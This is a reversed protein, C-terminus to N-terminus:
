YTDAVPGLATTFTTTTYTATTLFTGYTESTIKTAGFNGVTHTVYRATTADYQSLIFYKAPGTATYTATFPIQQYATTGSGSTATSSKAVVTGAANALAVNIHGSVATGNLVAVGTLTTNAPIFVECVYTETVVPTANTTGATTTTASTPAMGGSHFVTPVTGSQSIAGGATINGTVALTSSLTAAGTVLLTGTVTQNGTVAVNGGFTANKKTNLGESQIPPYNDELQMAM